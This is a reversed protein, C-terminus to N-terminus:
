MFLWYGKILVSELPLGVIEKALNDDNLTSTIREYVKKINAFSPKNNPCIGARMKVMLPEFADVVALVDQKTFPTRVRSSSYARDIDARAIAKLESPPVGCAKVLLQYVMGMVNNPPLKARDEEPMKALEGVTNILSALDDRVIKNLGPQGAKLIVLLADRLRRIRKLDEKNVGDYSDILQDNARAIAAKAEALEKNAKENEKALADQAKKAEEAMQQEAKKREDALKQALEARQSEMSQALKQEAALRQKELKQFAKEREQDMQQEVRKVFELRREKLAHVKALKQELRAKMQDRWQKRNELREVAPPYASDVLVEMEHVMKGMEKEMEELQSTMEDLEKVAEKMEIEHKSPLHMFAYYALLLVVVILLGVTANM